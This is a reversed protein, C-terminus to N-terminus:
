VMTSGRLKFKLTNVTFYTPTWFNQFKVTFLTWQLHEGNSSSNVSVFCTWLVQCRKFSPEDLCILTSSFLLLFTLLFWHYFSYSEFSFFLVTNINMSIVFNCCGLYILRSMLFGVNHNRVLDSVFWAACGSPSKTRFAQFKTNLLCHLGHDTSSWTPFCLRQDPDESTVALASRDSFKPDNRYYQMIWQTWLIEDVRCDYVFTEHVSCQLM